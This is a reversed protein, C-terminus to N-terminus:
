ANRRPRLTRGWYWKAVPRLASTHLIRLNRPLGGVRQNRLVWFGEEISQCMLGLTARDNALQAPNINCRYLAATVSAVLVAHYLLYGDMDDVRQVKFGQSAMAEGFKLVPHSAPTAIATPQQAIRIYEAMNGVMVGGIGPFGLEVRAALTRPLVSRGQPNNGFLLIASNGSLREIKAPVSGLQDYRVTVIVLDYTASELDRVVNVIQQITTGTEIDKIALGHQQIQDTRQGHASVDVQHGAAALQAGYVTGL